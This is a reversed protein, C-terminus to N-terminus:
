KILYAGYGGGGPGAAKLDDTTMMSQDFGNWETLPIFRDNEVKWPKVLEIYQELPRIRFPSGMKKYIELLKAVNPDSSNSNAAQANFAWVSKPGSREYLARAMNRIDDDEIFASLGWSVLAINTRGDLIELVDPRDLLEEPHRADSLFFHVHPIEKLIEKAYEVVIPDSDSYIM